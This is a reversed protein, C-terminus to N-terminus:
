IFKNHLLLHMFIGHMQSQIHVDLCCAWMKRTYQESTSMSEWLINLWQTLSKGASGHHKTRAQIWPRKAVLTHLKITNLMDLCWSTTLYVFWVQWSHIKGCPLPNLISYAAANWLKNLWNLMTCNLHYVAPYCVALFILQGFARWEAVLRVTKGGLCKADFMAGGPCQWPRGLPSGRKTRPTGTASDSSWGLAKSPTSTLKHWTIRCKQLSDTPQFHPQIVAIKKKVYRYM